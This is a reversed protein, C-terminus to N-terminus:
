NGSEQNMVKVDDDSLIQDSSGYEADPDRELHTDLLYVGGHRPGIGLMGEVTTRLSLDSIYSIKRVMVKKIAMIILQGSFSIFRGFFDM